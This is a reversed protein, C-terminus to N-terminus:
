YGALYRTLKKGISEPFMRVLFDWARIKIGILFAVRKRNRLDFIADGIQEPTYEVEVKQKAKAPVDDYM